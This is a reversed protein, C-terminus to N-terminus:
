IGLVMYFAAGGWVKLTTGLLCLYSSRESLESALCGQSGADFCPDPHLVNSTLRQSRCLHVYVHIHVCMHM